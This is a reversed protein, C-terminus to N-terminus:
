FHFIGDRGRCQPECLLGTMPGGEGQSRGVGRGAVGGFNNLTLPFAVERLFGRPRKKKKGEIFMQQFLKKIPPQKLVCLMFLTGLIIGMM